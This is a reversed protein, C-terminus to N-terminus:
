QKPRTPAARRVARAGSAIEQKPPFSAQVSQIPRGEGADTPSPSPTLAEGEEAPSPDPSEPTSKM